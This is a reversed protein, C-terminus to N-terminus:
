EVANGNSLVCHTCLKWRQTKENGFILYTRSFYDEKLKRPHMEIEPFSRDGRAGRGKPSNESIERGM